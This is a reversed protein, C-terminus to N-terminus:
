LIKGMSIRPEVKYGLREYFGAVAANGALVQLNIKLCGLDVLARELHQVLMRGVGRRRCQPEVALSYIWGRHGDYGGMVTGVVRGGEDAVFFLERQVALKKGIVTAPANHPAEYGFVESWLAVVDPTDEEAFARINMIIPVAAQPRDAATM